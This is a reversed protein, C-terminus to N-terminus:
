IPKVPVKLKVEFEDGVAFGFFPGFIGFDKRNIKFTGEFIGRDGQDKYTFPISIEKTVGHMNMKGVLEYGQETSIVRTSNFTVTSFKDLHFWSKGKAHKNKTKNGTDISGVDLSIEFKAEALKNSDFIINGALGGFTGDAGSGSFNITYDDQIALKGTQGQIDFVTTFFLVNISILVMLYKM